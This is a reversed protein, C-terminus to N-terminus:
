PQTRAAAVSSPASTGTANTATVRYYYTKGAKLKKAAYPTVGAGATAM